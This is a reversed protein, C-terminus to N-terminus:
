QPPLLVLPCSVPQLALLHARTASCHAHQTQAAHPTPTRCMGAGSAEWPFTSRAALPKPSPPSPM